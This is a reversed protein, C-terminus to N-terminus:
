EASCKRGFRVATGPIAMLLEPVGPKVGLARMQGGTIADRKGSNPGHFMSRPRPSRKAAPQM